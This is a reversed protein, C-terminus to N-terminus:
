PFSLIMTINTIVRIMRPEPAPFPSSSKIAGLVTDDFVSNGSSQYIQASVVYGREDLRIAAQATLKSSALWQPLNWNKKVINSITKYYRQYQIQDLGELESGDSVINGKVPKQVVEQEVVEKEKEKLDKEIDEIAKQRMLEQLAKQQATKTDKKKNAIPNVKPPPTKKPPAIPKPQPTPIEAKEIPKPEEKEPLGVLDVKIADQIILDESPFLNIKVVTFVVFALHLAVSAAVFQPFLDRKYPTSDIYSM